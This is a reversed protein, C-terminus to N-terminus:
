YDAPPTALVMHTLSSLWKMVPEIVMTEVDQMPLSFFRRHCFVENTISVNKIVYNDHPYVLYMVM